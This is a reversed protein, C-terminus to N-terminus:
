LCKRRPSEARSNRRAIAAAITRPSCPLRGPAWQKSLGCSKVPSLPVRIFSGIHPGKSSERGFGSVERVREAVRSVTWGSGATRRGRALWPHCGVRRTELRRLWTRRPATTVVATRWWMSRTFGADPFHELADFEGVGRTRVGRDVAGVPGEGVPALHRRGISGAQQTSESLSHVRVDLIQCRELNAIGAVGYAVSAPFGAM